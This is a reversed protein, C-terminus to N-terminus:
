CHAVVVVQTAQSIVQGGVRALGDDGISACIVRGAHVVVVSTPAPTPAPPQVFAGIGLVVMALTAALFVAFSGLVRSRHLRTRLKDALDFQNKQYDKWRGTTPMQEGHPTPSWNRKFWGSEQIKAEGHNSGLALGGWTAWAGYFVASVALGYALVALLYVVIRWGSGVPLENITTGHNIVVVASYLGLLTSMVGLWSQAQAQTREVRGHVFQRYDREWDAADDHDPTDTRRDQGSPSLSQTSDSPM